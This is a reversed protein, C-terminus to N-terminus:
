KQQRKVQTEQKSSEVLPLYLDLFKQYSDKQVYIRQASICVQGAFAFAGRVLSQAAKEIDADDFIINPSNLM